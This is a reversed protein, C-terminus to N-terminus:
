LKTSLDSLAGAGPDRTGDGQGGFFLDDGDQASHMFVFVAALLKLSPRVLPEDVDQPGRVLGYLAQHAQLEGGTHVDLDLQLSPRYGWPLSTM